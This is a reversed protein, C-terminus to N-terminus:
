SFLVWHKNKILGQQILLQSILNQNELSAIMLIEDSKLKPINPLKNQTLEVLFTQEPIVSLLKINLGTFCFSLIDTLDDEGSLHIGTM